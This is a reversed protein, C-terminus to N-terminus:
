ERSEFGEEFWVLKFREGIVGFATSRNGARRAFCTHWWDCLQEIKKFEFEGLNPDFYCPHSQPLCDLGAAHREDTEFSYWAAYKGSATGLFSGLISEANDVPALDSALGTKALKEGIKSIPGFAFYPNGPKIAGIPTGALKPTDVKGKNINRGQTIYAVSHKKEADHDIQKYGAELRVTKAETKPTPFMRPLPQMPVLSFRSPKGWFDQKKLRCRLWYSVWGACDNGPQCFARAVAGKQIAFDRAENNSIPM